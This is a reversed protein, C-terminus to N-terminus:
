DAPPKDVRARLADLRADIDPPQVLSDAIGAIEEADRWRAELAAMEGELARREDNGHLVMELALRIPAPLGAVLNEGPITNNYLRRTAAERLMTDLSSVTDLERVAERM